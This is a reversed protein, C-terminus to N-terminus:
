AIVKQYIEYLEKKSNAGMPIVINDYGVQRCAELLNEEDAEHAERLKAGYDIGIEDATNNEGDGVEKESLIEKPFPETDGYVRVWKDRFATKSEEDADDFDKKNKHFFTSLGGKKLRNSVWDTDDFVNGTGTNEPPPPTEKQPVPLTGKFHQKWGGQMFGSWFGAFSGGEAIALMMSEPTSDSDPNKEVVMEIYASLNDHAIGDEDTPVFIFDKKAEAKVLASFEPPTPITVAQKKQEAQTGKSTDIPKKKKGADDGTHPPPLEDEKKQVYEMWSSEGADIAAYMARLSAIESPSLTDVSHGIYKKIDNPWVNLGAFADLIRKKAADPDAKDRNALTARAREKAEQKIGAPLLRLGETRIFKSAMASEKIMMEDDTARLIYVTQNYSNKREGIVDNDRGKKSKREITKKLMIDRSFQTNTELDIVSVRIRRVDDDDYVMTVESLLNGWEAMAVEAFRISLDKIKTNGIPKSYEVKEAFDPNDCMRLIKTRAQDPTRPKQYAMMYACQIRAKATEAAAVVAPDGGGGYLSPVQSSFPAVQNNM